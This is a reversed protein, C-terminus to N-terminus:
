KVTTPVPPAIPRGMDGNATALGDIVRKVEGQYPRPIRPMVVRLIARGDDLADAAESNSRVIALFDFPVVTFRNGAGMSILKGLRRESGAYVVWWPRSHEEALIANLSPEEAAYVVRRGGMNLYHQLPEKDWHPFMAIVILDGTPVTGAIYRALSRWAPKPPETYYSRL